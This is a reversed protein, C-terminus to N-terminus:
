NKNENRECKKPWKDRTTLLHIQSRLFFSHVAHDRAFLKLFECKMFVLNLACCNLKSTLFSKGHLYHARFRLLQGNGCFFQIFNARFFIAKTPLCYFWSTYQVFVSRNFQSKIRTSTIRYLNHCKRFLLCMPTVNKNVERTAILSWNKRNNSSNHGMRVKANMIDCENRKLFELVSFPVLRFEKMRFVKSMRDYNKIGVVFIYPM